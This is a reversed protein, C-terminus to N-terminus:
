PCEMNLYFNTCFLLLSIGLILTSQNHSAKQEGLKIAMGPLVLAVGIFVVM